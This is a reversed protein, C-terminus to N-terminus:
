SPKRKVTGGTQKRKGLYETVARRVFESMSCRAQFAAVRVAEHTAEDVFTGLLKDKMAARRTKPTAM